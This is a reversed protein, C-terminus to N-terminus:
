ENSKKHKEIIKGPGQLIEPEVSDDIAKIKNLEDEFEVKTRKAGSQQNNRVSQMKRKLIIKYRNECQVSSRVINLETAIDNSIQIWMSKKCKFQKMPGVLPLYQEYKDLLLCTSEECWTSLENREKTSTSFDRYKYGNKEKLIQLEYHKIKRRCPELKSTLRYLFKSTSKEEKTNSFKIYYFPNFFLSSIYNLCFVFLIRKSIRKFININIEFRCHLNLRRYLREIDARKQMLSKWTEYPLVIQNGWNDGLVLQVYSM